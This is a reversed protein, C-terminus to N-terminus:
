LNISKSAVVAGNERDVYKMEIKGSSLDLEDPLDLVLEFNRFKNPTFVSVGPLFKLNTSVGASDYHTVSIDGYVSRDGGRDIRAKIIKQGQENDALEMSTVKAEYKLEGQRVIVPITIGYHVQIKINVSDNTKVKPAQAKPIVSVKMHSRYEGQKTNKKKRLQLRVTQSTKPALTFTRPSFRIMKNSYMGDKAEEGKKIEQYRGDDLMDKNEFTIRYTQEENSPNSVLLQDKRKKGEFVIRNPNLVLNQAMAFEPLLIVLSLLFFAIKSLRNM